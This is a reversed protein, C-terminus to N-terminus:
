ALNNTNQEIRKSKFNDLAIWHYGTYAEDSAKKFYRYGNKWDSHQTIVSESIIWMKGIVLGHYKLIERKLKQDQDILLGVRNYISAIYKVIDLLRRLKMEHNSEKYFNEVNSLVSFTDLRIDKITFYKNTLEDLESKHTYLIGRCEKTLDDGIYETITRFNSVFLQNNHTKLTIILIVATVLGTISPIAITWFDEMIVKYIM